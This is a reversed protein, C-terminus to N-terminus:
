EETMGRDGPDDVIALVIRDRCELTTIERRTAAALATVHNTLAAAGM